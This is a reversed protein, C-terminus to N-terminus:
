IAGCNTILLYPSLLCHIYISHLYSMWYRKTSNQVRPLPYRIGKKLIELIPFFTHFNFTKLQAFEKSNFSEKRVWEHLREATARKKEETVKYIYARHVQLAKGITELVTPIGQSPDPNSFLVETCRTIAKLLRTEVLENKKSRTIDFFTFEFHPEANGNRHVQANIRTVLEDQKSDLIITHGEWSKGKQLNELIEAYVGESEFLNELGGNTNLIEATYRSLQSFAPSLSIINGNYGALVMPEEAKNQMRQKGPKYENKEEVGM